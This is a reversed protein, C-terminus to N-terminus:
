VVHVFSIDGSLYKCSTEHLLGLSCDVHEDPCFGLHEFIVEFMWVEFM